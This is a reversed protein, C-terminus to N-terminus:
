VLGYGIEQKKCAAHQEVLFHRLPHASQEKEAVAQCGYECETEEHLEYLLYLHLEFLTHCEVHSWPETNRENYNSNGAHYPTVSFM